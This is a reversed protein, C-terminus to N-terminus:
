IIYPEDIRGWWRRASSPDFRRTSHVPSPRVSRAQPSAGRPRHGPQRRWVRVAAGQRQLAARREAAGALGATGDHRQAPGGCAAAAVQGAGGGGARVRGDDRQQASTPTPNPNPNPNRYPYTLGIGLGLGLRRKELGLRLGLGLGLGLGIGLVRIGTGLRRTWGYLLLIM